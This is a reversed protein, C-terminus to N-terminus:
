QKQQVPAATTAGPQASSNSSNTYAANYNRIWIEVKQALDIEASSPQDDKVTVCPMRIIAISMDRYLGDLAILTFNAQSWVDQPKFYAIGAATATGVAPALIALVKLTNKSKSGQFIDATSIGILVTSILGLMISIMTALTLNKRADSREIRSKSRAIDISASLELFSEESLTPKRANADRRICKEVWGILAQNDVSYREGNYQFNEM